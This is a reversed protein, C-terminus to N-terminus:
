RQPDRRPHRSIAQVLEEHDMTHREEIGLERALQRLQDESQNELDEPTRNQDTDRDSRSQPTHEM